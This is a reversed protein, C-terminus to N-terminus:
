FGGFAQQRSGFDRRRARQHTKRRPQRRSWLAPRPRVTRCREPPQFAHGSKTPYMERSWGTVALERKKLTNASATSIITESETGYGDNRHIFKKHECLHVLAAHDVATLPGLRKRMEM